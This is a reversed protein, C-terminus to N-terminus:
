VEKSDTDLRLLGNDNEIMAALEPYKDILDLVSSNIELM